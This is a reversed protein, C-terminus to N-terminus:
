AASQLGSRRQRRLAAGLGLFGIGMVSWTGPEPVSSGIAFSQGCDFLLRMGAVGNGTVSKLFLAFDYSSQSVGGIINMRLRGASPTNTLFSSTLLFEGPNLGEWALVAVSGPGLTDEFQTISGGGLRGGCGVCNVVNFSGTM